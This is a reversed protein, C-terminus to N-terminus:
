EHKMEGNQMEYLEKSKREKNTMNDIGENWFNFKVFSSSTLAQKQTLLLHRLPKNTLQEMKNIGHKRPLLLFFAVSLM